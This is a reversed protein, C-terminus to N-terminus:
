VNIIPQVVKKTKLPKFDFPLFEAVREQSMIGLLLM